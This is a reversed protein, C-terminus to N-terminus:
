PPALQTVEFFLSRTNLRVPPAGMAELDLKGM